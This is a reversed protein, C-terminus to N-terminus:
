LYKILFPHLEGIFNILVNSAEQIDGSLIPTSVRVLSGSKERNTFKNIALALRLRIYSQELFKGAKYFYYVLNEKGERQWILQNSNIKVEKGDVILNIKRASKAIQIGEGGLCGEPAHFEVKTEPFYVISLFVEKGNETYYVRHIVSKTELIEYVRDDLPIDKGQWKGVELPIKKIAQIGAGAKHFTDYSLFSVFLSTFVLIAILAIYRKGIKEM